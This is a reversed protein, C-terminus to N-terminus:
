YFYCTVLLAKCQSAPLMLNWLQCSVTLCLIMVHGWYSQTVNNSQGCMSPYINKISVVDILSHGYSCRLCCFAGM